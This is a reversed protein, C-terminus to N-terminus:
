KIILGDLNKKFMDNESGDRMFNPIDTPDYLGLLCAFVTRQCDGTPYNELQKLKTPAKM